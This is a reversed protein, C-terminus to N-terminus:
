QSSGLPYMGFEHATQTMTIVSQPSVDAQIIHAPSLIYGGGPALDQIKSRVTRRIEEQSGFPLLWQIDIAGHFVIQDGFERKLSDTEMGACNPQIPNLVVIGGEILGPIIPRIAGDTHFMLPVDPRGHEDLYRRAAQWRQKLRPLLVQRLTRPSYLLSNQTGLDDGSVKLITIYKGAAELGIRDGQIAIDTIHDLLAGAFEPASATAVLWNEFGMLDIATELITGGFRGVLALDTDEYLRKAAVETAEGVGPADPHPWPFTALDDLNAGALPHDVAEMLSGGGPQHVRRRRVGWADVIQDPQTRATAGTKRPKELKVSVVDWGMAQCVKPHPIVEQFTSPQLDEEFDLGLHAKLKLYFDLGCQVDIPVRDPEQHQIAKVVRERSTLGM